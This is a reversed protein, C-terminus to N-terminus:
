WSRKMPDDQDNWFGAAASRDEKIPIAGIELIDTEKWIGWLGKESTSSLILGWYNGDALDEFAVWARPVPREMTWAAVVPHGAKAVLAGLKALLASDSFKGFLGRIISKKIPNM